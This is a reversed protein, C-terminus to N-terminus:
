RLRCGPCNTASVTNVGDTSQLALIREPGAARLLIDQRYASLKTDSEDGITGQPASKERTRSPLHRSVIVPVGIRAPLAVSKGLIQCQGICERLDSFLLVARGGLERERPQQM